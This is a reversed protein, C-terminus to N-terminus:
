RDPSVAYARHQRKYEELEADARAVDGAARLREIEALWTKSDKRFAPADVTAKAVKATPAAATDTRLEGTSSVEASAGNVVIAGSNARADGAARRNGAGAPPPTYRDAEQESVFPAAPPQATNAYAEQARARREPVVRALEQPDTGAAALDVVVPGDSAVEDHPASDAAAASRAQAVSEMAPAPAAAPEDLQRAVNQVTVEATVPRTPSGVNLFLTVALMLTAALAVPMGWRPARFVRQPQEASIAERAQRLILRDLDAPPELPDDPARRFVPKRRTLFDDFEDDPGTM